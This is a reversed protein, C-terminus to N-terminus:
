HDSFLALLSLKHCIRFNSSFSKCNKEIENENLLSKIPPGFISRYSFNDWNLINLIDTPESIQAMAILYFIFLCNLFKRNRNTGFDSLNRSNMVKELLQGCGIIKLRRGVHIKHERSHINNNCESFPINIDVEMVQQHWCIGHEPDKTKRINGPKAWKEFSM